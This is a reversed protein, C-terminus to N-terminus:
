NGELTAIRAELESNKQVLEQIAKTLYPILEVHNLSLLPNNEFDLSEVNELPPITGEVETVVTYSNSPFVNAVDQALFGSVVKDTDDVKSNFTVPNLQSIVNIGDTITFVNEKIRVDSSVVQIVNGADPRRLNAAFTTTPAVLLTLGSSNVSTATTTGSGMTVGGGVNMFAGLASDFRAGLSGGEIEGAVSGGSNYFRLSNTSGRMEVRQGSSSTRIIGGTLTGDVLVDDVYSVGNSYFRFSTGGSGNFSVIGPNPHDEGRIEIRASGAPGTKIINSLTLDSELKSATIQNAAIKEATIANAALKDTEIAGASIKVATISGANIKDATVANTAIKDASISGAAITAATVANAGIKGAVISGAAIENAGIANAAIASQVIVDNGFMNSANIAGSALAGAPVVGGNFPWESLTSNVIDADVLPTVQATVQASAPSEVGSTDVVKIRIYYSTNYTLDTLVDFGGDAGFVRTSKALNLSSPTFGDSTSVYIKLGVVDDPSAIYTSAGTKLRGDWTVTITGLRSTAVPDSPPYTSIDGTKTGTTHNATAATSDQQGSDFAYLEFYYTTGQALRVDDDFTYSTITSDFIVKNRWDESVSRRWRIKYGALDTLSSGSASTTPATWSLTVKSYPEYTTGFIAPDDSVTLSTPPSPPDGDAGVASTPTYEVWRIGDWYYTENNASDVWISGDQAWERIVPFVYVDASSVDTSSVPTDVGATLVYEITNSTVGTIEFLGDVGYAQSSESFIDVFVIDGVEFHHTANMTLTVTSGPAATIEFSDVKRRTQLRRRSTWTQPPSSEPVFEYAHSITVGALQDTTPDHKYSPRGSWDASTDINTTTFNDGTVDIQSSSAWHIGSVEVRDGVAAGTDAETYLEVRDSSLGTLAKPYVYGDQVKKFQYPASASVVTEPGVAPDGIQVVAAVQDSTLLSIPRLEVARVRQEMRGM